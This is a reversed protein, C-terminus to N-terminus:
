HLNEVVQNQQNAHALESGEKREEAGVCHTSQMELQGSTSGRPTSMQKPNPHKSHGNGQGPFGQTRMSNINGM